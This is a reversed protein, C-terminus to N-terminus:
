RVLGSTKLRPIMADSNFRHFTKVIATVVGEVWGVAARGTETWEEECLWMAIRDVMPCGSCRLRKKLMIMCVVDVDGEVCVEV